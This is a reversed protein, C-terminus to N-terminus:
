YGTRKQQQGLLWHTRTQCIGAHIHKNHPFSSKTSVIISSCHRFIISTTPVHLRRVHLSPFATLQHFRLFLNNKIHIAIERFFPSSRNMLCHLLPILSEFLDTQFVHHFRYIKRLIVWLKIGIIQFIRTQSILRDTDHIRHAGRPYIRARTFDHVSRNQNIM